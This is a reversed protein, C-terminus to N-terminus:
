ANLGAATSEDLVLRDVKEALRLYADISAIVCRADVFLIELGLLSVRAVADVVMGKDLIVDVVDELSSPGPRDVMSSSSYTQVTM